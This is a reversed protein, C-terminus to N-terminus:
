GPRPVSAAGVPASCGTAAILYGLPPDAGIPIRFGDMVLGAVGILTASEALAKSSATVALEQAAPGDAALLKSAVDVIAVAEAGAKRCSHVIAGLQTRDGSALSAQLQPQHAIAQYAAGRVARRTELQHRVGQEGLKLEGDLFSKESRVAMFSLVWIGLIGSLVATSITSLLLQARM